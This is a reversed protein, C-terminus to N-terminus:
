MAARREPGGGTAALLEVWVDGLPHAALEVAPEAALLQEVREVKRAPEAVPQLIEEEAMRTTEVMLITEMHTTEAMIITEMRTIEAKPATEERPEERPATEAARGRVAPEAAVEVAM